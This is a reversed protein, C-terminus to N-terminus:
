HEAWTECCGSPCWEWMIDDNDLFHWRATRPVGSASGNNPPARVIVCRFEVHNDVRTIKAFWNQPVNSMSAQAQYAASTCTPPTPMGPCNSRRFCLEVLNFQGPQTHGLNLKVRYPNSPAQTTDLLVRVVPAWQNTFTVSDATALGPDPIVTGKVRSPIATGGSVDALYQEDYWAKVAYRRLMGMSLGSSAGAANLRQLVSNSSAFGTAGLECWAAGCKVGFYYQNNTSDRDWRAVDPIDSSTLTLGATSAVRVQLSPAAQLNPDVQRIAYCDSETTGSGVIKAVMSAGPMDSPGSMYMFVCNFGRTIRLPPYDDWAFIQVIPIASQGTLTPLASIRRTAFIAFFAGYQTSNAEFRQCDHYLPVDQTVGPGSLQAGQLLQFRVREKRFFETWDHYCSASSESDPLVITRGATGGPPRTAANKGWCAGLAVAVGLAVVALTSRNTEM